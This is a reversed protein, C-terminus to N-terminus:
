KNKLPIRILRELTIKGGPDRKPHSFEILCAPCLCSDYNAEIFELADLPLYVEFCWCKGSKSCHFQKGCRPCISPEPNTM